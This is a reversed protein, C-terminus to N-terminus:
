ITVPIFCYFLYVIDLYEIEANFDFYDLDYSAVNGNIYTIEDVVVSNTEFFYATESTILNDSEDYFYVEVSGSSINKNFILEIECNSHGTNENYDCYLNSDVLELETQCNSLIIPLFVNLLLLALFIIRNILVFRKEKM